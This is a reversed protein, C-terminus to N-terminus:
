GGSRCLSYILSCFKVSKLMILLVLVIYRHIVVLLLFSSFYVSGSIIVLVHSPVIFICHLTTLFVVLKNDSIEVDLGEIIHFISDGIALM